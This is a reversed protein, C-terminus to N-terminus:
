NQSKDHKKSKGEKHDGAAKGIVKGARIEDLATTALKQEAPVSVLKVGTGALETARVSALRVLRYVSNGAKPLLEELPQYSM